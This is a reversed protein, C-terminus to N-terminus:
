RPVGARDACALCLFDGPFHTLNEHEPQVEVIEGRPFRHDCACCTHLRRAPLAARRLIYAALSHKCGKGRYEHDPCTCSWNVSDVEYPTTKTGNVLFTTQGSAGIRVLILRSRPCALHTVIIGAARDIREELHPRKRRLREIELEVRDAIRDLIDTRVTSPASSETTAM